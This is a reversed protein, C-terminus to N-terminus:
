IARRKRIRERSLHYRSKDWLYSNFYHGLMGDLGIAGIGIPSGLRQVSFRLRDSLDLLPLLDIRCDGFWVPTTIFLIRDSLSVCDTLLSIPFIQLVDSPMGHSPVAICLLALRHIQSSSDFM